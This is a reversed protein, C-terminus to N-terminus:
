ILPLIRALTFTGREIRPRRVCQQGAGPLSLDQTWAGFLGSADQWTPPWVMNGHADIGVNLSACVVLWISGKLNM